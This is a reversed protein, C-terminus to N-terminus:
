QRNQNRGDDGTVTINGTVHGVTVRMRRNSGALLVIEGGTSGGEPFFGITAPVDTPAGVPELKVSEPLHFAQLSGPATPRGETGAESLVAVAGQRPDFYVAFAEQETIARGRAYRLISVVKRASTKLEFGPLSSAVRPLALGALLGILVMVVMMEVLTFGSRSNATM